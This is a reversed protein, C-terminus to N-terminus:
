FKSHFLISVIILCRGEQVCTSYLDQLATCLKIIQSFSLNPIEVSLCFLVCYRLVVECIERAIDKKRGLVAKSISQAAWKRQKGDKTFISDCAELEYLWHLWVLKDSSSLTAVTQCFQCRIYGDAYRVGYKMLCPFAFFSIQEM